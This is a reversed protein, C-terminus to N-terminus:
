EHCDVPFLYNFIPILQNKEHMFPLQGAAFNAMVLGALLLILM